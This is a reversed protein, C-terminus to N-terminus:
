YDNKFNQKEWDSPKEDHEGMHTYVDFRGEKKGKVFNGRYKNM